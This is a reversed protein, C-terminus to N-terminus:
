KMREIAILREVCLYMRSMTKSKGLELLWYSRLTEIDM